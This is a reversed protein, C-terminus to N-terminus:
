SNSQPKAPVYKYRKHRSVPVEPVTKIRRQMEARPVSVIKLLAEAFPKDQQRSSFPETKMFGFYWVKPNVCRTYNTALARSPAGCLIGVAAAVITLSSHGSWDTCCPRPLMVIM